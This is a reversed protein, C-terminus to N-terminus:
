TGKIFYEKSTNGSTIKVRQGIVINKLTQFGPAEIPTFEYLLNKGILVSDQDTSNLYSGRIVFKSIGSFQQEQDPDIGLLSAGVGDRLEGPKITDRYNSEVRATGSYRVTHDKYGPITKVIEEVKPTQDISSRNLFSSIIVDGIAYKKQADESGQILGILIGSVVILNLFTLTMVFAILTTTWINAHKIDRKALFWGVIVNQSFSNEVKIRDKM